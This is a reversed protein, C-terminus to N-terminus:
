PQAKVEKRGEDSSGRSNPNQVPQVPRLIIEDRGILGLEDRAVTEIYHPDNKLRDLQNILRINELALSENARRLRDRRDTLQYLDTVGYDGFVILVAMSVIVLLAATVFIKTKKKM